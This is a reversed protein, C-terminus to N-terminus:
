VVNSVKFLLLGKRLEDIRELGGLNNRLYKMGQFM